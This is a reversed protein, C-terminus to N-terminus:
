RSYYFDLNTVKYTHMFAKSDALYVIIAPKKVMKKKTTSIGTAGGVFSQEFTSDKAFTNNNGVLSGKVEEPQATKENAEAAPSFNDGCNRSSLAGSVAVENETVPEDEEVSLMTATTFFRSYLLKNDKVIGERAITSNLTVGCIIQLEVKSGKKMLPKYLTATTKKLVLLYTIKDVEICDIAVPM